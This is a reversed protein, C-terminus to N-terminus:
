THGAPDDAGGTKTAKKSPKKSKKQGVKKGKKGHAKVTKGRNATKKKKSATPTGHNAEHDVGDDAGEELMRRRM